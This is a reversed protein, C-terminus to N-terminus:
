GDAIDAGQVKSVAWSMVELFRDLRAAESLTKLDTSPYRSVDDGITVGPIPNLRTVLERKAQPDRDVDIFRNVEALSPNRNLDPLFPPLGLIGLETRQDDADVAKTPSGHV